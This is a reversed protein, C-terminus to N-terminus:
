REAGTGHYSSQPDFIDRLGDGIFNFALVTTFIALGPFTAMWWNQFYQTGVSIMSGWEPAPPQTGLGLFSLGALLLLADALYITVLVVIPGLVNPLVEKRLAYLGSAGLLRSAQVYETEGIERVLTRVVRAYVPWSVIVLALVANRTSPGLSATVVMALIIAPFSSTLDALRMVIGDVVGGVYGAVFGLATGISGALAVLLLALPLSNRSALLVRSLIDRGLEDTGFPHAGTPAQMIPFDQALPDHPAILPALIAILVWLGAITLGVIMVPQRWPSRTRGRRRRLRRLRSPPLVASPTSTPTLPASM